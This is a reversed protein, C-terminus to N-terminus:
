GDTRPGEPYHLHVPAGDHHHMTYGYRTMQRELAENVAPWPMAGVKGRHDRMALIALGPRHNIVDVSIKCLGLGYTYRGEGVHYPHGCWPQDCALLGEIMGPAPVVDHEVVVLDMRAEWWNMLARAYAYDDNPDLQEFTHAGQYAMVANVTEDRLRGHIYPVVVYADAVPLATQITHEPPKDIM